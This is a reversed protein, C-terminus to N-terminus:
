LSELLNEDMVNFLHSISKVPFSESYETSFWKFATVAVKIEFFAWLKYVCADLLIPGVSAKNQYM